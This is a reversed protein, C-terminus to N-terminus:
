GIALNHIDCCWSPLWAYKRFLALAGLQRLTPSVVDEFGHTFREYHHTSYAMQTALHMLNRCNRPSAAGHWTRRQLSADALLPDRALPVWSKDLLVNRAM